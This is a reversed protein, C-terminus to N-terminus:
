KLRGFIVFEVSGGTFSLSSPASPDCVTLYLGQSVNNIMPQISINKVNTFNQMTAAYMESFIGSMDVKDSYYLGGVSKSFTRESLNVTILKMGLETVKKTLEPNSMAYPVFEHSVAWDEATCIMPKFVYTGAPTNRRLAITVYQLITKENLTFSAGTGNDEINNPTKDIYLNYSSSSGGAPCGSLVYTGAALTLNTAVRIYRVMTGIPSSVVVKVSGDDNVTFTTEGQTASPSSNPLLNKASKDVLSPLSRADRTLEYNSKAYPVTEHSVGWDDLTCIMPKFVLGNSNTGQRIMIVIRINTTATSTLLVGNGTDIVNYSGSAAYMSYGSSYNGGAPCGALWHNGDCFREIYVQDTEYTGGLTLTCYAGGNGATGSTSVTGDSNVTFTVGNSSFVHIHDFHLLNKAGADVLRAIPARVAQNQVPNTSTSSLNTDVTVNTAGSAIGNLKQKDSASMLGSSSTTATSYTTNSNYYQIKGGSLRCNNWGTSATGTGIVSSDLKGDLLTDTQSKTYLASVDVGTVAGNVYILGNWDIAFANHRANDATGNGIIFAYESSSDEVNYKGQVHQYGSAAKTHYGEAHSLDGSVITYDGEAHSYNGSVETHYGEAHSYYGSAKNNTLDNFVEAGTRATVTQGDITYETGTTKLGPKKGEIAVGSQANASQANYTQDVTVPTPITPKNKIYDDASSDSQNWDSQVNVEAGAEINDLKNKDVGTYDNTSLGKGNEKDVKNNLLTQIKGWFYTLGSNDLFKNQM